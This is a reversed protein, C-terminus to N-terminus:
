GWGERTKDRITSERARSIVAHIKGPPCQESTSLHEVPAGLQQLFFILCTTCIPADRARACLQVVTFKISVLSLRGLTRQHFKKREEAKGAGISIERACPPSVQRPLEIGLIVCLRPLRPHTWSHAIHSARPRGPDVVYGAVKRHLNMRHATENLSSRKTRAKLAARARGRVNVDCNRRPLTISRRQARHGTLPFLRSIFYYDRSASNLRCNRSTPTKAPNARESAVLQWECIRLSATATARMCTYTSLSSSDALLFDFSLRSSAFSLLRASRHALSLPFLFAHALSCVPM